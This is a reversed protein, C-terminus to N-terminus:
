KKGLEFVRLLLYDELHRKIADLSSPIKITTELFTVDRPGYQQIYATTFRQKLVPLNKKAEPLDMKHFLFLIPIEKWEPKKLFIELETQSESYLSPDSADFVYILFRAKDLAEEWFYRMTKQGPADIFPFELQKLIVNSYNLKLTPKMDTIIEGTSLYHTIVTKGSTELGIISIANEVM